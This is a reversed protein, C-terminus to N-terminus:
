ADLRRYRTGIYDIFDPQLGQQRFLTQVQARHHVGHFNLQLAIDSLKATWRAGDPGTYIVEAEIAEESHSQLYGIWDQVSREWEQEITARSFSPGFWERQNASPAQRLRALWKDQSHILHSMLHMAEEAPNLEGLRAFIKRNAIDQFRFLDLLHSKMQM